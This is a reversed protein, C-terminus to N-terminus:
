SFGVSVQRRRGFMYETLLDAQPGLPSLYPGAMGFVCAIPIGVNGQGNKGHLSSSSSEETVEGAFTLIKVKASCNAREARVHRSCQRSNEGRKLLTPFFPLLRTWWGPKCRPHRARQAM